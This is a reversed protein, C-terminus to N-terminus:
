FPIPRPRAPAPVPAPKPPPPLAELSITLASRRGQVVEVEGTWEKYGDLRARVPYKGVSLSGVEVPVAQTQFSFEGIKVEAGPVNSTVLVSGTRAVPAPRPEPAPPPAPAPKPPVARAYLDGAARFADTSEKFALRDYFQGAQREQAAASAYEPNDSRAGQKATLMAAKAQDAQGRLDRQAQALNVAESYRQAADEFAKRAAPFNEQALL